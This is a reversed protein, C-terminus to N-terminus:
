NASIRIRQIQLEEEMNSAIILEGDHAFYRYPAYALDVESEFLFNLEKDFITIVTLYIGDEAKPPEFALRYHLGKSADYVPPLFSVQKGSEDMFGRVHEMGAGTPVTLKKEDAILSSQYDKNTVAEDETNFVFLDNSFTHSLIIRDNAYTLEPPFSIPRFDYRQLAEMVKLPNFKVAKTKMDLHAIGKRGQDLSDYVWYFHEISQDPIGPNSIFFVGSNDRAEEISMDKLGLSALRQGEYTFLHLSNSSRILMRQKNQFSFGIVRTGTGNPGEAELQVSEKYKKNALDFVDIRMRKNDFAYLFQGSEDLSAFRLGRSIDLIATDSDVIEPELVNVEFSTAAEPNEKSGSCSFLILTLLVPFVKKM